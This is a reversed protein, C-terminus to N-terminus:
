SAPTDVAARVRAALERPSFPKQLLSGASAKDRVHAVDTYGSMYLVRDVLGAAQLSEALVDGRVDPMVVDTLLLHVRGAHSRVKREAEAGDVAEIVRYGQGELIERALARVDAEDEVLLVTETGAAPEERGPEPGPTDAPQDVRPFYLDFTAGRGPASEVAIYGASQKVIGYVMALGLGTGKGVEKTTFFPDFIRAQTETDMGVGTDRVRLLVYRGPTAGPHARTFAADLTVNATALALQGGGPMADRANVALNLLVQELQGPDAHVRGLGPPNLITLDVDEGILRQLMPGMGAVLEGLDLVKPQMVQKRSFALLQGTLKAARETVRQMLELDREAGEDWRRRHLLLEVRGQLVTLMNNFDHAIGGALRGVADMKQAQRLQAESDRLAAEAQKRATINRAVSVFGVVAGDAGRLGSVTTETWVTSGDRCYLELEMTRSRGPDGGGRREIELEEALVRLVIECSAPTMREDMGQRMAEEPTYGRLRTVSPSVYTARLDADFVTIVDVVNEALLRYMHESERLAAEVRLREEHLTANRLTLAALHALQDLATVDEPAFAPANPGRRSVSIVGLLDDQVLLPQSMIHQIGREVAWPLAAPWAPYDNVLQGRRTVAAAGAVGERARIPRATPHTDARPALWGDAQLTFIGADGDFFAAARRVILQFLADPRLEGVLERHIDALAEIHLRHRETRREAENRDTVDRCSAVIYTAGEITVVEASLIVDVTEGSRTRLHAEVGRVSRGARLEDRVWLRERESVWMGRQRSTRGLIEEPAYGALAAFAPNVEVFQWDALRLIALPVPSSRFAARLLEALEGPAHALGAGPASPGPWPAGADRPSPDPGSVGLSDAAAPGVQLARPRAAATIIPPGPM